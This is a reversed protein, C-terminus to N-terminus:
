NIWEVTTGVVVELEAPRFAFNKLTVQPPGSVPTPSVTRRPAPTPPRSTPTAPAAPAACATIGLFLFARFLWLRRLM